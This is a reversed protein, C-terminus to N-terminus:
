RYGHNASRLLADVFPLEFQDLVHDGLNASSRAFHTNDFLPYWM